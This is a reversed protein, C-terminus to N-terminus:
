RSAPFDPLGLGGYMRMRLDDFEDMCDRIPNFAANVHRLGKQGGGSTLGIMENCFSKIMPKYREYFMKSQAEPGTLPKFKDVPSVNGRLAQGRKDVTNRESIYINAVLVAVFQTAAEDGSEPGPM